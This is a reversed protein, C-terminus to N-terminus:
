KLMDQSHQREEDVEKVRGELIRVCSTGTSNNHAATSYSGPLSFKHM